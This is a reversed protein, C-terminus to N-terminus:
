GRGARLFPLPDVGAGNDDVAMLWRDFSDDGLRAHLEDMIWGRVTATERTAPVNETAMWSMALAEDTLEASMARVPAAAQEYDRSTM